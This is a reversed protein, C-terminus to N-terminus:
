ETEKKRGFVRQLLNPRKRQVLYIETAPPEVEEDFGSLQDDDFGTLEQALDLPIRIIVDLDADESGEHEQEEFRRQRISEFAAPLNGLTALHYIGQESEHAVKWVQQGNEWLEATSAMAHEENTFFYVTTGASIAAQVKPQAFRWDRRGCEFLFMRGSTDVTGSAAIEAPNRVNDCREWGLIAAIRDLEDLSTVLWSSANSM